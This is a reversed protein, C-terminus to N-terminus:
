HIEASTLSIERTDTKRYLLSGIKHRRDFLLILFCSLRLYLPAARESIPAGVTGPVVTGHVLGPCTTTGTMAPTWRHMKKSFQRVLYAVRCYGLFTTVIMSANNNIQELLSRAGGASAAFIIVSKCGQGAKGPVYSPRIQEVFTIGPVLLM